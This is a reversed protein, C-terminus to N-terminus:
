GMLEIAQAWAFDYPLYFGGAGGATDVAYRVGYILPYGTTAHAYDLVTAAFAGNLVASNISYALYYSGTLDTIPTGAQPTRSIRAIGSFGTANTCQCSSDTIVSYQIPDCPSKPTVNMQLQSWGFATAITAAGTSALNQSVTQVVDGPIPSSPSSLVIRTPSAAWTGATTLGGEYDAFGIIRAPQSTFAASAYSTQAVGPSVIAAATELGRSDFGAVSAQATPTAGVAPVITATYYSCNRVVLQPTGANNAIAFWLRFSWASITGLTCGSPITLSLAATIWQVTGNQYYVGVPDTASPTAGALTQVTFTAANSAHSEVLKGNILNLQPAGINRLAVGQQPTTLAQTQDYRLIGTAVPNPILIGWYAATGISFLELTDNQNLTATPNGNITAGGTGTITVVGAAVNRLTTKWGSPMNGGTPAALSAAVASASNYTVLSLHDSNVITDTTITVTRYGLWLNHDANWNSPRVLTADTGDAIASVFAHTLSKPM